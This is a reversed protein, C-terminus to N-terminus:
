DEHPIIDKVKESSLPERVKNNKYIYVYIYYLLKFKPIYKRKLQIYILGTPLVFLCVVVVFLIGSFNKQQYKQIGKEKSSFCVFWM